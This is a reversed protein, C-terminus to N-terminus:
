SIRSPHLHKWKKYWLNEWKWNLLKMFETTKEKCSFILRRTVWIRCCDWNTVSRDSLTFWSSSFIVSIDCLTLIESMQSLFPFNTHLLSIRIASFPDFNTVYRLTFRKMFFLFQRKKTTIELYILKDSAVLASANCVSSHSSVKCLYTNNWIFKNKSDPCTFGYITLKYADPPEGGLGSKEFIWLYERLPWFLFFGRHLLVPGFQRLAVFCRFPSPNRYCYASSYNAIKQLFYLVTSPVFYYMEAFHVM